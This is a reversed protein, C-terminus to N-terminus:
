RGGQLADDIEILVVFSAVIGLATITFGLKFLGLEAVAAGGIAVLAPILAWLKKM